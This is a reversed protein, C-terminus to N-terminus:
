TDRFYQGAARREATGEAGGRDLDVTNDQLVVQRDRFQSGLHDLAAKVIVAIRRVPHENARVDSLLQLEADAIGADQIRVALGASVPNRSDIPGTHRVDILLAEEKM